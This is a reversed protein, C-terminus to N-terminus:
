NDNNFLKRWSQELKKTVEDIKSGMESANGSASGSSSPATSQSGAGSPQETPLPPLTQGKLKWEPIVERQGECPINAYTVNGYADTCKYVTSSPEQSSQALVAGSCLLFACCYFRTFM